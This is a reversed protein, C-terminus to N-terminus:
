HPSHKKNTSMRLNSDYFEKSMMHYRCQCTILHAKHREAEPGFLTGFLFSQGRANM